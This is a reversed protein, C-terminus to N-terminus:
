SLFEKLEPFDTVKDMLKKFCRFKHKKAAERNTLDMLKAIEDYSYNMKWLKLVNKCKENLVQLLSNVYKKSEDQTYYKEVTDQVGYVDSHPNDIPDFKLLRSKNQIINKAISTLYVNINIDNDVKNKRVNRRFIIFADHIVDEIDNFSLKKEGLIQKLFAKYDYNRYIKDIANSGVVGGRKIHSLLRVTEKKTYHKNGKM